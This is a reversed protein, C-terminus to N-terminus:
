PKQIWVNPINLDGNEGYWSLQLSIAFPRGLRGQSGGFVVTAFGNLCFALNFPGWCCYKQCPVHLWHHRWNELFRGQCGGQLPCFSLQNLSAFCAFCQLFSYRCVPKFSGLSKLVIIFLYFLFGCGKHLSTYTEKRHTWAGDEDPQDKVVRPLWNALQDM